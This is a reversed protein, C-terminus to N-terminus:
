FGRAAIKEIQGVSSQARSIRGIGTAVKEELGVGFLAAGSPACSELVQTCTRSMVSFGCMRSESRRCPGRRSCILNRVHVVMALLM